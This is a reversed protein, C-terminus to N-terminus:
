HKPKRLQPFRGQLLSPVLQLRSRCPSKQIDSTGHGHSTQEDFAVMPGFFFTAVEFWTRGTRNGRGPKARSVRASGPSAVGLGKWKATYALRLYGLLSSQYRLYRWMSSLVPISKPLGCCPARLVLLREVVKNGTRCLACLYGLCSPLNGKRFVRRKASPPFLRCMSSGVM